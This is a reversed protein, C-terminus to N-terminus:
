SRNQDPPLESFKRQSTERKLLDTMANLLATLDRQLAAVSDTFKLIQDVDLSEYKRERRSDFRGPRLSTAGAFTAAKDGYHITHHSLRDRTKKLGALKSNIKNWKPKLLTYLPEQFFLEDIISRWANFNVISYMVIGIKMAEGTGLLLGVVAILSEEMAAWHSLGQGVATYLAIRHQEKFKEVPAELESVPTKDRLWEIARRLAEIKADIARSYLQELRWRLRMRIDRFDPAM